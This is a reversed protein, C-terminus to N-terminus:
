GPWKVKRIRGISKDCRSWVVLRYEASMWNQLHTDLKEGANKRNYVYPKFQIYKGSSSCSINGKNIYQKIV